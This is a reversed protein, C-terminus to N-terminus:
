QERSSERLVADRVANSRAAMGEQNKRFQKDTDVLGAAIAKAMQSRYRSSRLKLEAIPNSIYELEILVGPMQAGRLVYFNAEKVVCSPVAAHTKAARGLLTACELSENIFNNIAMSALLTSVKDTKSGKKSELAIVSNEVRAVAEAAEDTAEPSLVYLELGSHKSSLSSNCHISIFLDAGAENAIETRQALPIFEDSDRTLIVRVNKEKQLKEALLKAVKLNIDKEYTGRVGVAGADHGGHGADIVITRIRTDTVPKARPKKVALDVKPATEIKPGAKPEQRKVSAALGEKHTVEIVLEHDGKDFYVDNSVAAGGLEIIVDASKRHQQLRVRQIVNDGELISTGASHGGPFRLWIRRENQQLLEYKTGEAVDLRLIYRDGMNEVPSLVLTVPTSQLFQNEKQDWIIKTETFKQFEESLFYRVPLFINNSYNVVDKRKFDICLSKSPRSLCVRNSLPQWDVGAGAVSGLQSISVFDKGDLETIIVRKSQGDKKWGIQYETANKINTLPLNLSAQSTATTFLLLLAAVKRLMDDDIYCVRRIRRM